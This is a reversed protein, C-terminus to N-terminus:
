EEAVAGRRTPQQNVGNGLTELRQQVADGEAVLVVAERESRRNTVSGVMMDLEAVRGIFWGIGIGMESRGEQTPIGPSVCPMMMPIM